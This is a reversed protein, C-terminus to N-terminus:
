PRQFPEDSTLNQNGQRPRILEIFFIGGKILRYIRHHCKKCTCMVYGQTNSKAEALKRGCASCILPPWADRPVTRDWIM